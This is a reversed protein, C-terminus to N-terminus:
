NMSSVRSFAVNEDREAISHLRHHSKAIAISLRDTQRDTLNEYHTLVLSLLIVCNEGVAGLSELKESWSEHWIDCNLGAKFFKV